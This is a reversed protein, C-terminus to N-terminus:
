AQHVAAQQTGDTGRVLELGLEPGVGAELVHEAVVGAVLQAVRLLSAETADAASSAGGAAHASGVPPSAAARRIVERIAVKQRTSSCFIRCSRLSSTVRSTWGIRQSTTYPSVNVRNRAM